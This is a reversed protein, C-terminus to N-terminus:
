QGQGAGNTDMQLLTTSLSNVQATCRPRPSFSQELTEEQQHPIWVESEDGGEHEQGQPCPFLKPGTGREAGDTRQQGCRPSELGRGELHEPWLTVTPPLISLLLLSTLSNVAAERQSGDQLGGVM